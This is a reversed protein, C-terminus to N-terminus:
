KDLERIIATAAMKAIRGITEITGENRDNDAAEDDYSLHWGLDRIGQDIANQARTIKDETNDAM